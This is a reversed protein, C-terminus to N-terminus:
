RFYVCCLPLGTGKTSRTYLTGHVVTVNCCPAWVLRQGRQVNGRGM